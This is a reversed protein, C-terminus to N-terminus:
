EAAAVVAARRRARRLSQVIVVLALMPAWVWLLESLIVRLGWASFFSAVGIPSVRIVRWPFFFRRTDFPSLFAVGQGGTTFADLVGHSATVVFFTGALLWWERSAPRQQRFFLTPIVLGVIVAFLLSHVLGRHGMLSDYPVGMMHGIADADPLIACLAALVWYRRPMVRPVALRGIAIGVMGHTFASAM